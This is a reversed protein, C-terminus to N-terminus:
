PCGGLANGDHDRCGHDRHDPFDAPPIELDTSKRISLRHSLFGDAFFAALQTSSLPFGLSAAIQSARRFRALRSFRSRTLDSEPCLKRLSSSLRGSTPNRSSSKFIRKRSCFSVIEVPFLQHIAGFECFNLNGGVLNITDSSLTMCHSNQLASILRESPLVTALHMVHYSSYTM